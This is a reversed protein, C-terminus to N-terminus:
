RKQNVIGSKRHNMMKKLMILQIKNMLLKSMKKDLDPDTSLKEPSEFQPSDKPLTIVAQPIDEILLYQHGLQLFSVIRGDKAQVEKSSSILYTFIIFM